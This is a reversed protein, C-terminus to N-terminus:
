RSFSEIRKKQLVDAFEKIRMGNNAAQATSDGLVGRLRVPFFHEVAIRWEFTFVTVPPQFASLLERLDLSNALLPNKVAADEPHNKWKKSQVLSERNAVKGIDIHIRMHARAHVVEGLETFMQIQLPKAQTTDFWQKSVM